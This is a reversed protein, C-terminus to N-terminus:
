TGSNGQRRVAVDPTTPGCALIQAHEPKSNLGVVEQNATLIPRHPAYHHHYAAASRRPGLTCLWVLSLGLSASRWFLVATFSDVLTLEYDFVETLSFFGNFVPCIGRRAPRLPLSRM